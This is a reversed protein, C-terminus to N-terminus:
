YLELIWTDGKGMRRRYRSLQCVGAKLSNINYPKLEYVLRGAEDFYDLRIGSFRRFEKGNIDFTKYGKHIRRGASMTSQTFDGARDLGRITDWADDTFDVARVIKITDYTSDALDTAKDFIKVGRIAEGLGTVFPILDLIDGTLGIWSGPSAPNVVVEVVSIGLPFLDFVTEWAHGSPDVYMVPNNNCYAYLNM